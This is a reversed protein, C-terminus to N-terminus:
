MSFFRPTEIMGADAGVEEGLVRAPFNDPAEYSKEPGPNRVAVRSAGLTRRLFTARPSRNSQGKFEQFRRM